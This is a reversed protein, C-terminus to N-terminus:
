SGYNLTRDKIPTNKRIKCFLDSQIKQIENVKLNGINDIDDQDGNKEIINIFKNPTRDGNINKDADDDYPSEPFQGLQEVHFHDTAHHTTKHLDSQYCQNDNKLLFYTLKQQHDTRSIKGVFAIKDLVEFEHPL